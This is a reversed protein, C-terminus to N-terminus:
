HKHQADVQAYDHANPNTQSAYVTATMCSSRFTAHNLGLTHGIEHCALADGGGSSSPLTILAGLYHRNSDYRWSAASRSGVCVEIRGSGNSCGGPSGTSYVLRVTTLGSNWRNAAAKIKPGWFSSGTKDVIPVDRLMNATPRRWHLSNGHYASAPSTLVVSIVLAMGAALLAVRRPTLRPM